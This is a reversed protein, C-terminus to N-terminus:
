SCGAAPQISYRNRREADRRDRKHIRQRRGRESVFLRTEESTRREAARSGPDIAVSRTAAIASTFGSGDHESPSSFAHRKARGGNLPARDRM